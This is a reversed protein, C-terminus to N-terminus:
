CKTFIKRWQVTLTHIGCKWLWFTLLCCAVAPTYRTGSETWNSWSCIVSTESSTGTWKHSSKVLVIHQSKINYKAALNKSQLVNKRGFSKKNWYTLDTNPKRGSKVPMSRSTSWQCGPHVPHLKKWGKRFRDMQLTPAIAM